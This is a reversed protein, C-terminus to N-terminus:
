AYAAGGKIAFQLAVVDASVLLGLRWGRQLSQALSGEHVMTGKTTVAKATARLGPSFQSRQKM